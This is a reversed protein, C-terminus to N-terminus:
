LYERVADKRAVINWHHLDGASDRFRQPYLDFNKDNPKPDRTDGLCSNKRVKRRESVDRRAMIAQGHIFGFRVIPARCPHRLLVIM